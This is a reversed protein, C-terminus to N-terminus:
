ELNKTNSFVKRGVTKTKTAASPIEAEVASPAIKPECSPNDKVLGDKSNEASQSMEPELPQFPDNCPEELKSQTSPNNRRLHKNILNEIEKEKDSLTPKADPFINKQTQQILEKQKTEDLIKLSDELKRQSPASLPRRLMQFFTIYTFFLLLLLCVINFDKTYLNLWSSVKKEGPRFKEGLTSGHTGKTLSHDMM